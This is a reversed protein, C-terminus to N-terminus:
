YKTKLDLPPKARIVARELLEQLGVDKENKTATRLARRSRDAVKFQPIAVCIETLGDYASRRIGPNSNNAARLLGTIQKNIVKQFDKSLDRAKSLKTLSAKLANLASLRTSGSQSFFGTEIMPIIENVLNIRKEAILELVNYITALVDAPLTNIDNRIRNVFETSSPRYNSVLWVIADLAGERVQNDSDVLAVMTEKVMEQHLDKRNKSAAFLGNFASLRVQWNDDDLLPKLSEFIEDSFSRNASAVYGLAEISALQVKFSNDNRSSNVKRYVVKSLSPYAEVARGMAVLAKQRVDESPHELNPDALRYIREGLTPKREVLNAFIQFVKSRVADNSSDTAGKILEFIHEELGDQQTVISEIVDLAGVLPIDRLESFLSTLISYIEDVLEPSSEVERKLASYAIEQIEESEDKIGELILQLIEDDVGESYEAMNMLVVYSNKRHEMEPHLIGVSVQDILDIALSPNGRLVARVGLILNDINSSDNTSLQVGLTSIAMQGIINSNFSIKRLFRTISNMTSENKADMLTKIMLALVFSRYKEDETIIKQLLLGSDWAVVSDDDSIHSHIERILEEKEIGEYLSILSKYSRVAYIRAGPYPSNMSLMALEMFMPEKKQVNKLIQFLTEGAAVQVRESGSSLSEKLMGYIIDVNSIDKKMTKSIERLMNEISRDSKLKRYIYLYGELDETGDAKRYFKPIEKILRREASGPTKKFVVIATFIMFFNQIALFIAILLFHDLLGIESLIGGVNEKDQNILVDLIASLIVGLFVFVPLFLQYTSVKFGSESWVEKIEKTAGRGKNFITLLLTGVGIGVNSGALVGATILIGRTGFYFTTILAQFAFLVLLLGGTEFKMERLSIKPLGLKKLDKLPRRILKLRILDEGIGSGALASVSILPLLLSWLFIGLRLDEFKGGLFFETIFWIPLVYFISYLLLGALFPSRLKNTLYEVANEIVFESPISSQEGSRALNLSQFFPYITLYLVSLSILGVALNRFNRDFRSPDFMELMILVFTDYGIVLFIAFLSVSILKVFGLEFVSRVGAAEKMSNSAFNFAAIVIFASMILLITLQIEFGLEIGGINIFMFLILVLIALFSSTRPNSLSVM